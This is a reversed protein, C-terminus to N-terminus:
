LFGFRDLQFLWSALGVAALALAPLRLKVPPAVLLLVAAIVALVGFPNATLATTLHGGLVAEVSTTMGCLPCPVGTLLRLPCALGPVGPLRASALGLGLMGVSARRLDVTRVTLTPLGPM